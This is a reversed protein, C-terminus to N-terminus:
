ATDALATLHGMKRGPRSDAKGYLHLKVDRHGLAASWNPSGNQWLDGLLNAMAAPRLQEPSGLPLGCVARVQQEFQCSLCADITYHGSNHPRPALENVLLRDDRTVFFEVCLVGVVDLRQFIERTIEVADAAVRPSVAAPASTVDLIHNAHANQVPGYAVFSGDTGRAGIVSVECAFDIFAELITPCADRRGSDLNSLNFVQGVRAADERSKIRAQGKGDYGWATTKLVGSNGCEALAATLEEHSGVPWFPTVPIGANKLFTKERLRNQTTHLVHGGPRVPAHKECTATALAPVNEFEFTVVSVGRAFDAVADLDDYAARIELDAVQGTPTDYDPSFVHVRYGLRRAAITFMRGLQGSGLVGLTSGPSIM